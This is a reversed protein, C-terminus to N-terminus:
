REAFMHAAIYNVLARRLGAPGDVTIGYAQRGIHWELMTSTSRGFISCEYWAGPHGRFTTRSLLRAPASFCGVLYPFVRQQRPSASWITAEGVGPASGIYSDPANFSGTLSLLPAFCASTPCDWNIAPHIWPTPLSGPCYVVARNLRQATRCTRRVSAPTRALYIPGVQVTGAPPPAIRYGAARAYGLSAFCRIDGRGPFRHGPYNPPYVLGTSVQVAYPYDAPCLSGGYLTVPAASGALISVAAIAGSAAVLAVVGVGLARRQWRRGLVIGFRRPLRGSTALRASVSPADASRRAHAQLLRELMEQEFEDLPVDRSDTM